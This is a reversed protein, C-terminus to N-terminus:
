TRTVEMIAKEFTCKIQRSLLDADQIDMAHIYLTRNDDSVDLTLTGPTLCILCALLTIEWDSKLETEYAFIGPQIALKPQLIQKLVVLSSHLLEKNFLLFLKMLAWVRYLYFEYTWFRRLLMLCILGVLFGVIFQVVSWENNLFMWVFALIFNLLIQLAM